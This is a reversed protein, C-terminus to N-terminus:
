DDFYETKMVVTIKDDDTLRKALGLTKPLEYAYFYRMTFIKGTYFNLEKKAPGNNLAKQAVKSILHRTVEQLSTLSDGLDGASIFINQGRIQYYSHDTPTATTTIDSLSSGAEPEALATTGQWGGARMCPVYTDYLEKGDFSEILHSAGYTLVPYVSASYNAAAFMFECIDAIM